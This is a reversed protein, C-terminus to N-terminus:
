GSPQADKVAKFAAVDLVAVINQEDDMLDLLRPTDGRISYFVTCGEDGGGEYHPAGGAKGITYSGEPRIEKLAGDPEYIRHEGQVVFTHAPAPHGHLIIKEKAAFKVIFDVMNRAEDVHYVWAQMHKLDGLAQWPILSDDFGPRTMHTAANM